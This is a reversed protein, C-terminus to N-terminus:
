TSTIISRTHPSENFISLSTFISFTYNKKQFIYIQLILQPISKTAMEIQKLAERNIIYQPKKISLRIKRKDLENQNIRRKLWIWYM